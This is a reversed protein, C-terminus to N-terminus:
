GQLRLTDLLLTGSIRGDLRPLPSIGQPHGFGTPATTFWSQNEVAEM